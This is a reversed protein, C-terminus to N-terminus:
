NISDGSLQNLSEEFLKIRDPNRSLEIAMEYEAIAEDKRNQIRYILGLRAHAEAAREQIRPNRGDGYESIVITFEDTASSYDPLYGSYALMFNIQGLEFHIKPSIDSGVPKNTSKDAKDILEVAREILDIDLDAPNESAEIPLLSKRYLVNAKGLLARSYDPHIELAKGYYEDAIDLQNNKIASNGILLYLIHKGDREGWGVIQNASIFVSKANEFDDILYYALGIVIKSLGTLRSTMKNTLLVRDSIDDYSSIDIPSGFYHQGLIEEAEYFNKSSIYFEPIIHLFNSDQEITGYVIVDAGIEDALREAEEVREVNDKGKIEGVLAPGWVTIILDTTNYDDILKEIREYSNQAIDYGLDSNVNNGTSFNAIAVRFDGSMKKNKKDSTEPTVTVGTLTTFVIMMAVSSWFIVWASKPHKTSLIRKDPPQRKTPKPRNTTVQVKKPHGPLLGTFFSVIEVNLIAFMITVIFSSVGAILTIILKATASITFM